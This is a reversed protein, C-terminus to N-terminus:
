LTVFQSSIGYAGLDVANIAAVETYFMGKGPAAFAYSTATTGTNSIVTTWNIGDQSYRVRYGTIPSGGNAPATWSTRITGSTTTVTVNTPASPAGAITVPGAVNSYAGTGSANIAAIRVYYTGVPMAFSANTTSSLTNAVQTTWTAQNTSIQILYGSIPNGHDNITPNWSINIRGAAQSAKLGAPADPILKPDASVAITFVKTVTKGSNDTVGLTFSWSGAQLPTGSIVGAPSITLGNPLGLAVRTWTYPTTGGIAGLTAQYAV